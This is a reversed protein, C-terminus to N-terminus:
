ETSSGMSVVRVIDEYKEGFLAMAGTTLAEQLAMIHTHVPFDARIWRNIQEDVEILESSTLPRSCTFDLRLREPEVLSGRQEVQQGVISRLAKHLLHTASHNRITDERRQAIVDAQ